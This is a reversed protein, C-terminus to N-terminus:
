VTFALHRYILQSTFPLLLSQWVNAVSVFYCMTEYRQLVSSGLVSSDLILVAEIVALLAVACCM